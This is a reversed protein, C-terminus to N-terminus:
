LQELFPHPLVSTASEDERTGRATAALLEAVAAVVRSPAIQALCANHGLPCISKYCNRCPVDHYLVRSPVKWPTHQPNTLAYLDVIPTRLAAAIHAPGTNGSVMVAAQAIVAALKGLDLKGALSHSACRMDRRIGDVLAIESPGGTFVV